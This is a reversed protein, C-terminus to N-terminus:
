VDRTSNEHEEAPVIPTNSELKAVRQDLEETGSEEIIDPTLAYVLFSNDRVDLTLTGPTLTITNAHIVQGITTHQRVRIHVLYPRIPLSPSLILKAVYINSKVVQWLMWPLFGILRVLIHYAYSEEDLIHMRASLWVVLACSAAGLGVLLPETHGSLLLWVSFLLIFTTIARQM